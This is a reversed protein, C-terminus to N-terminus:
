SAFYHRDSLIVIYFVLTTPDIQVPVIAIFPTRFSKLTIRTTPSESTCMWKGLRLRLRYSVEHALVGIYLQCNVEM